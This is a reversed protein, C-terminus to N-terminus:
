LSAFGYGIIVRVSPHLDEGLRAHDGAYRAAVVRALATWQEGHLLLWRHTDEKPPM